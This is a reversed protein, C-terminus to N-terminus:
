KGKCVQMKPPPSPTDAERVDSDSVDKEKRLPSNCNQSPRAGSWQSQCSFFGGERLRVSVPFGM